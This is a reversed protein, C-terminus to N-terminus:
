SNNQKRVKEFRAELHPFKSPLDSYTKTTLDDYNIRNFCGYKELIPQHNRYDEHFSIWFLWKIESYTFQNLYLNIFDVKEIDNHYNSTDIAQIIYFANSFYRFLIENMKEKYFDLAISVVKESQWQYEDKRNGDFMTWEFLEMSKEFVLTGELQKNQKILENIKHQYEFGIITTFHYDADPNSSRLKTVRLSSTRVIELHLDFLRFLKEEFDRKNNEKQQSVFQDQVAKNADIQAKLAAFVLISGGLSLFPATLGGITDGIFGTNSSFHTYDQGTFLIPTIFALVFCLIAVCYYIWYNKM